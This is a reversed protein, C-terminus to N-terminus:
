PRGPAPPYVREFVAHVRTHRDYGDICALAGANAAGGRSNAAKALVALQPASLAGMSAIVVDEDIVSAAQFSGPTDTALGRWLVRLECRGAGFFSPADAASSPWANIYAERVHLRRETGEVFIEGGVLVNGAAAAKAFAGKARLLASPAGLVDVGCSNRVSPGPCANGNMDTAEWASPAGRLRFWQARADRHKQAETPIAANNAAVRKVLEGYEKASAREREQALAAEASSTDSAGGRAYQGCRMVLTLVSLAAGLMALWTSPPPGVRTFARLEDESVPVDSVKEDNM